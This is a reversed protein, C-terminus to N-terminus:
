WITGLLLMGQGAYHDDFDARPNRCNNKYHGIEHCKSCWHVRVRQTQSEIRRKPPRGLPRENKPPLIRRNFDEDLEQGGVVASTNDNIVRSDHTEM